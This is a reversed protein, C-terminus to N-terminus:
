SSARALAAALREDLSGSAPLGRESLQEVGRRGHAHLVVRTLYWDDRDRESGAPSTAAVAAALEDIGAGTRASVAHM